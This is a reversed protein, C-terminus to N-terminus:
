QVQTSALCATKLQDQCRQKQKRMTEPKIGTEAGIDKLARGQYYFARLLERCDKTLTKWGQDLLDYLSPELKVDPEVSPDLILDLGIASEKKARKYYHQRAMRTLLYRLNGYAIKGDVIRQRFSLFADMTSDYAIEFPANDQQIVYQQCEKFHVLFIHEFLKESGELLQDKLEAFASETLGFNKQQELAV